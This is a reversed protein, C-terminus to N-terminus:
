AAGSMTAQPVKQTLPINLIPLLGTRWSEHNQGYLKGQQIGSVLSEWKEVVKEKTLPKIEVMSAWSLGIKADCPVSFTRGHVTIPITLHEQIKSLVGWVRDIVEDVTQCDKVYIGGILSDHVTANLPVDNLRPDNGMSILGKLLYRGITSQPIFSVASRSLNDSMPGLFKKRWGFLNMVTRTQRVMRDIDEQYTKIRHFVKFYDNLLQTCTSVPLDTQFAFTNPGMCYNAAHNAKKGKQRMDPSVDELAVNFMRSANATHVDAGSLLIEMMVEDEATFAVVWNEATSLDIEFQVYGDDAILFKKMEKPQNQINTGFGEITKSSSLRGSKTGTVKYDNVLRGDWLPARYYSSVIKYLSRYELVMTAFVSGKKGKHKIKQLAKTDCTDKKTKRNKYATIALEDYLYDMVAKSSRANIPRGVVAEINEDLFRLRALAEIEVRNKEMVDVRLGRFAMEMLPKHSHMSEEFFPLNHPDKSAESLMVQAVEHTTICDMGNYNWGKEFDWATRKAMKWMKGDDKYYRHFTYISTLADLGKPLDTWYAHAFVMTDFWFDKTVIGRERFMWMMDFYGNQFIKRVPSELFEAIARWVMVEQRLTWYNGGEGLLPIVFAEREGVSFGICSTQGGSTEIDIASYECRAALVQLTQWVERVTKAVKVTTVPPFNRKDMNMFRDLKRWDAYSYYITMPGDSMRHSRPHYMFIIWKGPCDSWGLEEMSYISGRYKDIKEFKGKSFACLGIEGYVVIYHARSERITKLARPLAEQITPAYYGEKKLSLQERVALPSALLSTICIDLRDLRATSLIMNFQVRESGHFHDGERIDVSSPFDSMILIPAGLDGSIGLKPRNALHPVSSFSLDPIAM